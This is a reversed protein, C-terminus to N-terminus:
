LKIWRGMWAHVVTKAEDVLGLDLLLQATGRVASDLASFIWAHTYSTHEGVFITKFETQYYAPLYLEQQGVLPSAWAGAQHEDLEWCQRDYNGTFEEAAIPGHAEIMARQILAVHDLESLAGLSRAQTGSQYSGLIVGPGTGNLNYAPYCVSGVGPIDTSGCGGLIPKDLHEWFRSKYHLAIKCSPSYNMTNIARSLLSSYRPLNWLRVKTFPAAVVAYDYEATSPTMDFEHGPDRWQLSIKSTENNYKLGTIKRGYTIKDKIHPAFANPLSNLGKDITVWTTATFYGSDYFDGWLGNTGLGAVFDTTNLSLGLKNYLFAAESWSLSGSEVAKKHEGYMDVALNRIVEDTIGLHEAWAKQGIEAETANPATQGPGRLSPDAAIDSAAPIRGDPLRGGRSNAPTNPSSQIWKIFEVKLEPNKEANWNNLVEALQFVMQHDKIALSEGTDKYEISVPVAAM